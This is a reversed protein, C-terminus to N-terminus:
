WQYVWAIFSMDGTLAVPAAHPVSVIVVSGDFQVAHGGVGGVWGSTSGQVINAFLGSNRNLSVDNAGAGAGENLPWWGVLGRALPHAPDLILGPLNQAPM